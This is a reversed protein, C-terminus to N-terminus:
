LDQPQCRPHQPELWARIPRKRKRHQLCPSLQPQFGNRGPPLAIPVTYNGTGTHLDPSFKEGIGSLAGGGKPAAIVTSSAEKGM